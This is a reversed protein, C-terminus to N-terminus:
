GLVKWNVGVGWKEGDVVVEWVPGKIGIRSGVEVKSGKQLGILQEEGALLVKVEGFADVMGREDGDVVQIKRGKVMTFGTKSDGGIEDVVIRVLWQPREEVRARGSTVPVAPELNVLWGQVEAALGGHVYKQGKRHPSFHDPLPDNHTQVQETPDPPKFRLPKLFTTETGSTSPLPTSPPLPPLFKPATTSSRKAVAIPPSSLIPLSSSHEVSAHEDQNEDQKLKLYQDEDHSIISSVSLRRRKPSPEDIKYDNGDDSFENEYNLGHGDREISDHIDGPLDDSSEDIM